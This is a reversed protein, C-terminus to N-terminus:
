PASSPVVGQSESEKEPEIMLTLGEVTYFKGPSVNALVTKAGTEKEKITVRFTGGTKDSSEQVLKVPDGIVEVANVFLAAENNEGYDKYGTLRVIKPTQLAVLEKFAKNDQACYMSTFSALSRTDQVSFRSFGKGRLNRGKTEMLGPDPLYVAELVFNARDQLSGAAARLFPISVERTQALAGQVSMVVIGILMVRIGGEAKM